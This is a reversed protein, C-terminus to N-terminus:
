RGSQEKGGMSFGAEAGPLPARKFPEIEPKISQPVYDPESHDEWVIGDFEAPERKERARVEKSEGMETPSLRAIIEGMLLNMRTTPPAARNELIPRVWPYKENSDFESGLTFMVNLFRLLDYESELGYERARRLGARVYHLAGADGMQACLQPFCNKVHALAKYDFRAILERALAAMQSERITLM